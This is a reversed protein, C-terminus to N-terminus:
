SAEAQSSWVPLRPIQLCDARAKAERPQPLSPDDICLTICVLVRCLPCVEASLKGESQSKIQSGSKRRTSEVRTKDGPVRCRKARACQSLGVGGTRRGEVGVEAQVTGGDVRHANSASIAVCHASGRVFSRWSRSSCCFLLWRRRCTSLGRGLWWTCTCTSGRIHRARGRSMGDRNGLALLGRWGAHCPLRCSHGPVDEVLSRQTFREVRLNFAHTIGKPM